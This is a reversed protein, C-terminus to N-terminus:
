WMAPAEMSLPVAAEEREEREYITRDTRHRPEYNSLDERLDAEWMEKGGGKESERARRSLAHNLRPLTFM